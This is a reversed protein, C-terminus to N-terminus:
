LGEQKKLTQWLKAPMVVFGQRSYYEPHNLDLGAMGEEAERFIREVRRKCEAQLMSATKADQAKLLERRWTSYRGTSPVEDVEGDTLLREESPKSEMKANGYGAEKAYQPLADLEPNQKYLEHIQCAASSILSKSVGPMWFELIEKLEEFNNM